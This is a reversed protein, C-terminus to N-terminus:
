EPSRMSDDIWTQVGREIIVPQSKRDSRDDRILCNSIRSRNVDILHLGVDCDLITLGSVNMRDCNELTLAALGHGAQGIHLSSISCDSSDRIVLRNKADLAHGYDYRPNHDFNNPGLVINSSDEIRLNYDFGMWFTNGVLTVGRCSQLWVNTQVDSLINGTITVHGERTLEGDVRPNSKGIIRINASEPGKDNHQITCGTIAVEATGNDSDRCDIFVNATPEARASMNSEIDCGTIHLNRVNGKRSVVGGLDCYSIHCGVINSQHLNCDDYFIGIGHNEYIHSADITVNRNNEVLHVGYRLKRLHVRSITLQMTGSAEIGDALEHAGEICIETVTPMRERDWVQDTFGAPEASKFHTGRIRIAPGEGSMVLKTASSGRLARYGFAALDIQLPRTIKFVGPPIEVLGKSDDILKQIAATADTQGAALETWDPSSPTQQGTSFELLAVSIAIAFICLSVFRFKLM